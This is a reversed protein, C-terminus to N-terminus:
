KKRAKKLAYVTQSVVAPTVGTLEAIRKSSFGVRSLDGILESQNRDKSVLLTLLKALESTPDGNTSEAM